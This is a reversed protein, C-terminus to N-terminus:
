TFNKNKVRSSGFDDLYDINSKWLNLHNKRFNVTAEM